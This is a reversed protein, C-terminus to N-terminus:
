SNTMREKLYSNVLWTIGSVLLISVVVRNADEVLVLNGDGDKEFVVGKANEVDSILKKISEIRDKGWESKYLWCLSCIYFTDVPTYLVTEHKGCKVCIGAEFGKRWQLESAKIDLLREM